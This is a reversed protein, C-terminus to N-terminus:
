IDTRFGAGLSTYKMLFYYAIGGIFFGLCWALKVELFAAIAGLISGRGYIYCDIVQEFGP